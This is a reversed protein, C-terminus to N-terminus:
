RAAGILMTVYSGPHESRNEWVHRTGNQIVVDGALVLTEVGGDLMLWLEGALMVHYDVSPTAHFGRTDDIYDDVHIVSGATEQRAKGEDYDPSERASIPPLEVFIAVTEGPPPVLRDITATPDAGDNPAM